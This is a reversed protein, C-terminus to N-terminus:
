STTLPTMLCVASEHINDYILYYIRKGDIKKERFFRHSLFDGVYPHSTLHKKEFEAIENQEHASFRKALEKDFKRTRFVAYM